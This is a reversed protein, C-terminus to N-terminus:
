SVIVDDQPADDAKAVETTKPTSTAERPVIGNFFDAANKPDQLFSIMLDSFAQTNKFEEAIETSKIFQRGDLSKKGYATLIIKSLEDYITEGDSADILNQIWREYGGNKALSLKFAEAETLNFYFDETRVNGDFDTYTITKVFM